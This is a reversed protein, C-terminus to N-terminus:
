LWTETGQPVVAAVESGFVKGMNGFVNNSLPAELHELLNQYPGERTMAAQAFYGLMAVMALRGHKVEKEKFRRTASNSEVFDMFNFVPGGPYVPDGGPPTVLVKELGFVFPQKALSGPARFDQLRRTEAVAMLVMQVYFLSVADTGFDYEQGAPPLFGTQFWLVGTGEPIVGKASLYEPAFCGVAGLMAWRGHIVESYRLWEQNVFGATNDPAFLGLPDFGKDGPLTGDLYSLSNADALVLDKPNRPPRPVVAKGSAPKAFSGSTATWSAAVDSSTTTIAATATAAAATPGRGRSTTGSSGLPSSGRSSPKPVVPSARIKSGWQPAQGDSGVWNPYGSSSTSAEGLGPYADGKIFAQIGNFGGALGGGAGTNNDTNITFRANNGKGIVLKSNDSRKKLRKLSLFRQPNPTCPM